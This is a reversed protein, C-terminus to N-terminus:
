FLHKIFISKLKSIASQASLSKDEKNEIVQVYESIEKFLEVSMTETTAQVQKKM